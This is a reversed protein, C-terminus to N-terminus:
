DGIIGIGPAAFNENRVYVLVKVNAVHHFFM